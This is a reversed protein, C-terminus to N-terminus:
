DRAFLAVGFWQSGSFGPINPTKVLVYSYRDQSAMMQAKHGPSDYWRQVIQKSAEEPSSATVCALIEGKYNGKFEKAREQFGIHSLVDNGLRESKVGKGTKHFYFNEALEKAFNFAQVQIEPDMTGDASLPRTNEPSIYNQVAKALIKDYDACGEACSIDLAPIPTTKPLSKTFIGVAFWQPKGTSSIIDTPVFGFGFRNYRTLLHPTSAWERIVLKAAKEATDASVSAALEIKIGGPISSLRDEIGDQNIKKSPTINHLDQLHCNNALKQAFKVAVKQITKSVDGSVCRSEKGSRTKYQRAAEELIISNQNAEENSIINNAAYSANFSSTLLLSFLFIKKVMLFRRILVLNIMLIIM